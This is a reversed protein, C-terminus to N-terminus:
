LRVGIHRATTYYMAEREKALRECEAAVCGLTLPRSALERHAQLTDYAGSIARAAWRLYLTPM